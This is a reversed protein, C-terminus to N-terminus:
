RVRQFEIPQGVLALKLLRHADAKEVWITIPADGGSLEAKYADFTGAPVKVSEEATVSIAIAGTTGKGSMFVPVTFKAGTAWKLAPLLPTLLNDDITGAGVEADVNVTKAGGQAPTVALGKARGAAYIVDIKADQGAQKGTQHVSQMEMAGSFRVETTQQVFTAIQTRETYTWVGAANELKSTQWGLPNGQLLITFSDTRAVLFRERVIDLAAAKVVLDGPQMASGDTTVLRVPAIKALKDYLKAGDGVVVILAQSPRIAAKAAAQASAATVVALRQRYTQVFDPALGLLKATTVQQAVQSVAEVTLPFAGTLANRADDFEEAAIREDGIRRLQALLEVLASDTVDTRVETNAEFRGVDRQRVLSSYAGYTWGKQERLIQFLRANAGGGLAKDAVTADYLRPDTPKWTLNGVLINSQVAGPKHVLVLQMTTRVPPAQRASAAVPRGTWKEFAATALQLAQAKTLSGAVVLLAGAPRVRAKHYAVIEERGIAKVSAPDPRRGYPHAGYLAAAFTRAAITAPQSLDLQLSSLTQTRLLDVEKQPFTPRMAVDALLEFALRADRSLANVSVTLFDAGASASISGGVGEIATSIEDASRSGAGKTLLGAVMEALGAKGAPDEASGTPFALSMALVPQKSSHVVLLHMGNALTAEVFPPFAAPRIPAPAPAKDPFQAPSAISFCLLAGAIAATVTVARRVRPRQESAGAVPAVAATSM